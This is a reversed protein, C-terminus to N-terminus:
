LGNIRDCFTVVLYGGPPNGPPYRSFYTFHHSNGNLKVTSIVLPTVQHNGLYFLAVSPAATSPLVLSVVLYGGHLGRHISLTAVRDILPM